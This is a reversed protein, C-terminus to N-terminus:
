RAAALRARVRSTLDRLQQNVEPYRELMVMHGSDPVRVLGVGPLRAVIEESHSPPTMLDKDGVLVLTEVGTFLQIARLRDHQDLTPLFDAVVDIPTNWLMRHVFAAMTPSVDSAFSFRRTLVLGLDSGLKRTREVLDKQRVMSTMVGPTARRVTRALPAPLGFGISTLGGASTSLMAVGRVRSGFEEPRLDAYAMLTMGGMSHGVLIVPGAAPCTADVVAALDRGLQDITAAAPDSRGSRGHSRQDWFVLRGLARLDRRQYHWCDEELAYGHCFVITLGDGRKDALSGAPPDEVEVHLSVGDSATVPVVRGRLGGYPEDRDPDSKLSRRVVVREAVVGLATGVALAAGVAGAAGAFRGANLSALDPLRKRAEELASM